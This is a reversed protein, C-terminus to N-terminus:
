PKKPNSAPELQADATVPAAPAGWLSKLKVLEGDFRQNIRRKEGEQDAVFRKQGAVLSDNEELRRKVALPTKSPTKKYFELEQAISARQEALEQSRKSSLRILEEVQDLALVREKEHAASNPYRTLLARDRRKEEAQNLRAAAQQKEKEELAAREQATFSPPIIRRVMGTPSVEQQNRDNCEAIPRDATIKRGKADICTYIGQAVVNGAMLMAVTVAAFRLTLNFM